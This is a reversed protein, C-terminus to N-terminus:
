DRNKLRRNDIRRIPLRNVQPPPSPSKERTISINELQDILDSDNRLALGEMHFVLATQIM